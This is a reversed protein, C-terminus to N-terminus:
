IVPFGSWAIPEVGDHGDVIPRPVCQLFADPQWELVVRQLGKVKITERGLVLKVVANVQIKSMEMWHQWNYM